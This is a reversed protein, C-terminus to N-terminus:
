DMREIEVEEEKDPDDDGDDPDDDANATKPEEDNKGTEEAEEIGEGEIAEEIEKIEEQDDSTEEDQTELESDDEEEENAQVPVEKETGEILENDGEETLVDDSAIEENIKELCSLDEFNEEACGECYFDSTGKIAFVARENCIICKKPM